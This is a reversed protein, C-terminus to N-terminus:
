EKTLVGLGFSFVSILIVYGTVLLRPSIKV